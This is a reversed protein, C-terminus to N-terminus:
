TPGSSVFALKARRSDGDRAVGDYGRRANRLGRIKKSWMKKWSLHCAHDFSEEFEIQVKKKSQQYVTIEKKM